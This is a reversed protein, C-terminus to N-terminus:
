VATRRSGIGVRMCPPFRTREAHAIATARTASTHPVDLADAAVPPVAGGAEPPPETDPLVPPTVGTPAVPPMEGDAIRGELAGTLFRLFGFFRLGRRRWGTCVCVCVGVGAGVTPEVESM